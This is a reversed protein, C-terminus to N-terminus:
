LQPLPKLLHVLLLLAVLIQKLHARAAQGAPFSFSFFLSHRKAGM